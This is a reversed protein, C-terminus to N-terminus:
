MATIADLLFDEIPKNLKSKEERYTPWVVM